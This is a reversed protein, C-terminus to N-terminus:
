SLLPQPYLFAWFSFVFPNYGPFKLFHPFYWKIVSSRYAMYCRYRIVLALVASFDCSLFLLSPVGCPWCLSPRWCFSIRSFLCCSNERVVAQVLWTFLTNFSILVGIRLGQWQVSTQGPEWFCQYTDCDLAQSCAHGADRIPTVGFELVVDNLLM